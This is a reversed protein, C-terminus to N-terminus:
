KKLRKIANEVSLKAENLHEMLVVDKTFFADSLMSGLKAKTTILALEMEQKRQEINMVVKQKSGIREM